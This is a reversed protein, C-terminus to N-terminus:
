RNHLQELDIKRWDSAPVDPNEVTSPRDPRASRNHTLKTECKRHTYFGENGAPKVSKKGEGGTAKAKEAHNAAATGTKRNRFRDHANLAVYYYKRQYTDHGLQNTLRHSTLSQGNEGDFSKVLPKAGMERM